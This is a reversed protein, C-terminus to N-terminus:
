YKIPSLTALWKEPETIIETMKTRKFFFLKLRSPTENGLHNGNEKLKCNVNRFDIVKIVTEIVALSNM